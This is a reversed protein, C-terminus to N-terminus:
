KLADWGQAKLEAKTGSRSILYYGEEKPAMHGIISIDNLAKIREFDAQAVTFLLEYDEGGNLAATTPDIKMIGLQDWTLQHIPLKDEYIVCGLDSSKAIHRIDSAVGDSVDIMATPKIGNEKLLRVVDLRPEPKLQRELLYDLGELEPQMNPDAKFVAKERELILLGAYAAGLDGSVCILDNEGAGTRYVVEDSTASGMVTISIVLGIRSSTTDGGILDVGYHQCAQYIGSYLEEIAELSFRSSLALSVTIQEPTGCMACIDSLNVAVAKYGLHKLPYYTLDFHVGEILLDTSVLTLKDGYALVAADDGIGRLTTARSPSYQGTLRDILGFEGISTLPTLNQPDTM